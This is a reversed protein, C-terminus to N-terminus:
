RGMKKIRQKVNHEQEYAMMHKNLYEFRQERNKFDDVASQFSVINGNHDFKILSFGIFYSENFLGYAQFNNVFDEKKLDELKMSEDWSSARKLYQKFLSNSSEIEQITYQEM